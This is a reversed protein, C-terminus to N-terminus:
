GRPSDMPLSSRALLSNLVKTTRRPLTNNIWYEKGPAPQAQARLTTHWLSGMDSNRKLYLTGAMNARRAGYKTVANSTIGPTRAAEKRVRAAILWPIKPSFKNWVREWQALVWDPEDNSVVRLATLLWFFTTASPAASAAEQAVPLNFPRLLAPQPPVGANPSPEPCLLETPLCIIPDGVEPSSTSTEQWAAEEGEDFASADKGGLFPAAPDHPRSSPKPLRPFSISPYLIRDLHTLSSTLDDQFVDKWAARRPSKRPPLRLFAEFIHSFAHINWPNSDNQPQMRNATSEAEWPLVFRSNSPDSSDLEVMHAGVGHRAFGRFLGDYIALSPPFTEEGVDQIGGPQTAVTGRTSRGEEAQRAELELEYKHQEQIASSLFGLEAALGDRTSHLSSSQNLSPLSSPAFRGSSLPTQIMAQLVGFAEGLHSQWSFCQIALAYTEQDPIAQPPLTTVGLWKEMTALAQSASTSSLGHASENTLDPAPLEAAALPGAMDWPCVLPSPPSVRRASNTEIQRSHLLRAWSSRLSAILGYPQHATSASDSSSNISLLENRLAGDRMAEYIVRFVDAEGKEEVLEAPDITLKATRWPVEEHNTWGTSPTDDTRAFVQPDDWPNSKSEPDSALDPETSLEPDDLDWATGASSEGAGDEGTGLMNDDVNLTAELANQPALSSSVDAPPTMTAAAPVPSVAASQSSTGSAIASGSANAGLPSSNKAAVFPHKDIDDLRPIDNVGSPVTQDIHQDCRTALKFMGTTAPDHASSLEHVKPGDLGLECRYVREYSVLGIALNSSWERRLDAASMAARTRRAHRQAAAEVAYDARTKFVCEDLKPRMVANAPRAVPEKAMATAQSGQGTTGPELTLQPRALRFGRLIANVLPTDLRGTRAAHAVILPVADLTLSKFAYLVLIRHLRSGLEDMVKCQDRRLAEAQAGSLPPPEASEAGPDSETASRRMPVAGAAAGQVASPLMLSRMLETWGCEIVRLSHDATWTRQRRKETDNPNAHSRGRSRTPISADSAAEEDALLGELEDVFTRLHMTGLATDIGPPTLPTYGGLSSDFTYLDHKPGSQPLHEMGGLDMQNDAPGEAHSTDHSNWQPAVEPRVEYETYRSMLNMGRLWAKEQEAELLADDGGEAQSEPHAGLRYGGLPMDLMRRIVELRRKIQSPSYQYVHRARPTARAAMDMMLLFVRPRAYQQFRMRKIHANRSHQQRMQYQTMFFKGASPQGGRWDTSEQGRIPRILPQKSMKAQPEDGVGAARAADRIKHALEHARQPDRSVLARAPQLVPYPPPCAIRLVFLAEELHLRSITNSRRSLLHLIRELVTEDKSGTLTTSENPPRPATHPSFLIRQLTLSHTTMVSLDDGLKSVAPNLPSPLLSKSLRELVALCRFAARAAGRDRIRESGSGSSDHQSVAGAGQPADPCDEWEEAGALGPPTACLSLLRNIQDMRLLIFPSAWRDGLLYQQTDLLHYLASEARAANGADLAASLATLARPLEKRLEDQSSKPAFRRQREEAKTRMRASASHSHADHCPLDRAFTHSPPPPTPSPPPEPALTGAAHLPPSPLPPPRPPTHAAARRAVALRARELPSLGRSTAVGRAQAPAPASRLARWAAAFM